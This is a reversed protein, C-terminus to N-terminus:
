LFIKTLPHALIVLRQPAGLFAWFLPDYRVKKEFAAVSAFSASRGTKERQVFNWDKCSPATTSAPTLYSQDCCMYKIGYSYSEIYPRFPQTRKSFATFHQCAKIFPFTVYTITAESIQFKSRTLFTYIFLCVFVFGIQIKKRLNAFFCLALLILHQFEEMVLM